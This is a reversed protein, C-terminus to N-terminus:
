QDSWDVASGGFSTTLYSPEHSAQSADATGPAGPAGTLVFFSMALAGTVGGLLGVGALAVGSWWSRGREPMTWLWRQQRPRPASAVIRRHLEDSAPAVEFRDLWDDLGAAADLLARAEGRHADAWARAADREADPWRHADAGYADVIARFRAESMPTQSPMQPSTNSESTM